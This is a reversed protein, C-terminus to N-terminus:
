QKLRKEKEQEWKQNDATVKENYKAKETDSLAEWAEASETLAKDKQSSCFLQYGSRAPRISALPTIKKGVL